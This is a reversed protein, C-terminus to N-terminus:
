RRSFARALSKLGGSGLPKGRAVAYNIQRGLTANGRCGRILSLLPATAGASSRAFGQIHKPLLGDEPVASDYCVISIGDINLRPDPGVWAGPVGADNPFRVTSCGIILSM